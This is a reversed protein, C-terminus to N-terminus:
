CVPLCITAASTLCCQWWNVLRAWAGVADCLGEEAQGACAKGATRWKQRQRAKGGQVHGLDVSLLFVGEVANNGQDM